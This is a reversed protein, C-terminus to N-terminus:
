RPHGPVLGTYQQELPGRPLAEDLAHQPLFLAAETLVDTQPIFVM